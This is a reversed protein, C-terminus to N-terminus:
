NLAQINIRNLPNKDNSNFFRQNFFQRYQFNSSEALRLPPSLTHIASKIALQAHIIGTRM